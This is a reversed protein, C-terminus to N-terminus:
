NRRKIGHRRAYKSVTAISVGLIPAADTLSMGKEELLERIKKIDIDAPPQGGHVTSKLGYRKASTCVTAVSCGKLKSIEVYSRGEDLLGEIDEETLLTPWIKRSIAFRHFNNRRIHRYITATSCGAREAIQECSLRGKLQLFLWAPSIEKLAPM